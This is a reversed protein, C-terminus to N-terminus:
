YIDPDAFYNKLQDIDEEDSFVSGILADVVKMEDVGIVLALQEIACGVSHLQNLKM